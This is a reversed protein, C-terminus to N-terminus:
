GIQISCKNLAHGSGSYEYTVLKKTHKSARLLLLSKRTCVTVQAYNKLEDTDSVGCETLSSVEVGVGLTYSSGATLGTFSM